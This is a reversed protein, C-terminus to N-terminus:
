GIEQGIGDSNQGDRRLRSPDDVVSARVEEPVWSTRQFNGAVTSWDTKPSSTIVPLFISQTAEPSALNDRATVIRANSTFATTLYFTFLILSALRFVPLKNIKMSSKSGLHQHEHM